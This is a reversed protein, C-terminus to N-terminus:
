RAGAATWFTRRARDYDDVIRSPVDFLLVDRHEPSYPRWKLGRPGSAKGTRAFAIWADSMQDAVAQAGPAAALAPSSAVNNFALAVDAGHPSRLVENIRWELVYVQAPARGQRAKLEAVTIAANRMWYDTIIDALIYSPTNSTKQKEYFDFAATAKSGLAPKLLDIVETRSLEGFRPLPGAFLVAEDRTSGVLFPVDASEAAATGDFPHHTLTVGDILPIMGLPGRGLVRPMVKKEAVDAAAAVKRADMSQLAAVDGNRLGLDEFLQRAIATARDRTQIQLCPGSQMIAKHFLGKAAPLACVVSVKGAGGSEGFLTVNDPDGGFATINDRIWQLAAVVDLMGVNGSHEFSKGAVDALYLYGFVNLRHNITVVVVDGRQALRTGDSAPASGSGVAFGGGHLWVMVPRKEATTNRTWINLVLCDESEGVEHGTFLTKLQRQTETPPAEPGSNKRVFPSVGLPIQPCSPGFAVCRRVGNWDPPPSPPMFRGSGATSAGYPIGLFTSVGGKRIGQVDGQKTRIVPTLGTEGAAARAGAGALLTMVALAQTASRRTIM